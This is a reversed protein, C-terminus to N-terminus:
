PQWLNMVRRFKGPDNGIGDWLTEDFAPRNAKASQFRVHGDGFLANIGAVGRDKHPSATISHVLDTSISRGPDVASQKMPAINKGGSDYTIKSVEAGAISTKVLAQPFYNYGTRINDDGSGAPTSPWPASRAYYDYIWGNDPAANKNSPCYFIRADPILRTAFLLGLNYPGQTINASGPNVRYAEYTQWPNSGSPWYCQPMIDGADSTYMIVGIGIQKLQSICATRQAREKARALAPLLMGALIAIIAIVVLLEILTFGKRFPRQGSDPKSISPANM